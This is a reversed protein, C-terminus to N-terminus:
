EARVEVRDHGPIRCLKINDFVSLRKEATVIFSLTKNGYLVVSLDTTKYM